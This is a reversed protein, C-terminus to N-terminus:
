YTTTFFAAGGKDKIVCMERKPSKIHYTNQLYQKYSIKGGTQLEFLSNETQDWDIDFIQLNRKNYSLLFHRKKLEKEARIRFENENSCQRRMLVLRDHLTLREVLKHSLDAKFVTLQRNGNKPLIRMSCEFGHIINVDPCTSSNSPISIEQMGDDPVNSGHGHSHNGGGSGCDNGKKYWGRGIRSFGTKQLRKRNFINLLAEQQQIPITPDSLRFSDICHFTVRYDSHLNTFVVASNPKDTGM